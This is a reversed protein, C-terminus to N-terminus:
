AILNIESSCERMMLLCDRLICGCMLLCRITKVTPNNRLFIKNVKVPPSITANYLREGHSCKNRLVFLVHLHKELRSPSIGVQKAIVNIDSFYLALYIMSISSLTMLEMMVWVPMKDANKNYHHKVITPSPEINSFFKNIDTQQAM